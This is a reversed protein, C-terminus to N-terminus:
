GTEVLPLAVSYANHYTQPSKRSVLIASSASHPMILPRRGTDKMELVM